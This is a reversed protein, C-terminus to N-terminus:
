DGRCWECEDDDCIEIGDQLDVLVNAWLMDMCGKGPYAGYLYEHVDSGAWRYGNPCMARIENYDPLRTVDIEVNLKNALEIAKQRTTM